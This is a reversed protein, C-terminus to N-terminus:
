DVVRRVSGTSLVFFPRQRLGPPPPVVRDHRVMTMPPPLTRSGGLSSILSSTTGVVVGLLSGSSSSTSSSSGGTVSINGGAYVPGLFTSTGGILLDGTAYVLGEIASPYTDLQTINTNGRYPAGAPNFNRGQSSESFETVSLQISISGQVVLAPFAPDVPAMYTSGEIVSGPGPNLLVLTGYVRSDRFTITQNMCNLIYIGHPNKVPGLPHEPSILVKSFNQGATTVSTATGVTSLWGLMVASDAMAYPPRRTSTTGSLGSGTIEGATEVNARVTSGTLTVGGNSGITGRTAFRVNQFTLTGGAYLALSYIPMPTVRPEIVASIAQYAAGNAASARLAIPQNLSWFSHASLPATTAAQLTAGGYQRPAVLTRGDAPLNGLLARELAAVGLALASEALAQAKHRHQGSTAMRGYGSLLAMGGAATLTVVMVTSLVIIYASGRRYSPFVRGALRRGASPTM